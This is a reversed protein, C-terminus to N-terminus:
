LEMNRNQMTGVYNADLWLTISFVSTVSLDIDESIYLSFFTADRHPFSITKRLANKQRYGVTILLFHKVYESYPM